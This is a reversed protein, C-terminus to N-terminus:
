EGNNMSSGRSMCTVSVFNVLEVRLRTRAGTRSPDSLRSAAFSFEDLELMANMWRRICLRRLRCSDISISMSKSTPAAFPTFLGVAATSSRSSSPPSRRKSSFSRVLTCLPLHQTWGGSILNSRCCIRMWLIRVASQMARPTMM